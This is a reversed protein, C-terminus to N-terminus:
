PDLLNYTLINVYLHKFSLVKNFEVLFYPERCHFKMDLSFFFDDCMTELELNLFIIRIKIPQKTYLIAKPDINKSTKKIISIIIMNM